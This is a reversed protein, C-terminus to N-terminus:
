PTPAPTPAPAPTQQDKDHRGGINTARVKGAGARRFGAPDRRPDVGAEVGATLHDKYIEMRTKEWAPCAADGVRECSKWARDVWMLAPKPDLREIYAVSAALESRWHIPSPKTRGAGDVAAEVAWDKLGVDGLRHAVDEVARPDDPHAITKAEALAIAFRDDPTGKIASDAYMERPPFVVAAILITIVGLDVLGVFRRLQM